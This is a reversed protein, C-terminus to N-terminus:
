KLFKKPIKGPRPYALWDELGYWLNIEDETIGFEESPIGDVYKNDKVLGGKRALDYFIKRQKDLPLESVEKFEM